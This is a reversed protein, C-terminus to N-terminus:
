CICKFSKDTRNEERGKRFWCNVTEHGAKKCHTCNKMEIKAKKKFCNRAYHGGKHCYNCKVTPKGGGKQMSDKMESTSAALATDRELSM